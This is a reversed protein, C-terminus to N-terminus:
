RINPCFVIMSSAQSFCSLRLETYGGFDLFGALRDYMLELHTSVLKSIKSGDDEDTSNDALDNAIGYFGAMMSTSRLFRKAYSSNLPSCLMQSSAESGVPLKSQNLSKDPLVLQNLGDITLTMTGMDKNGMVKNLQQLRKSHFDMFNDSLHIEQSAITKKQKNIRGKAMGKYCNVIRKGRVTM